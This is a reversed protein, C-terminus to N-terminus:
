ARADGLDKFMSINTARYGLGIYLAYARTNHGFVHLGVGTLGLSAAKEELALFARTAHGKNRHEPKVLVDYVYAVKRGARDQIAFWLMGLAPGEPTERIEYLFNDPTALGQPLLEEYGARALELADEEAWQGSTVKDRAFDPIADKLYTAYEAESMPVLITM